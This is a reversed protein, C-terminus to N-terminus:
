ISICGSHSQEHYSTTTFCSPQVSAQFKQCSRRSLGNGLSIYDVEVCSASILHSVVPDQRTADSLSPSLRSRMGATRQCVVSVKAFFLFCLIFDAANM